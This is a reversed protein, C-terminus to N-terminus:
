LKVHQKETLQMMDFFGSKNSYLDSVDTNLCYGIFCSRRRRYWIKWCALVVNGCSTDHSSSNVGCWCSEAIWFAMRRTVRLRFVSYIQWFSAVDSAHTRLWEHTCNRRRCNIVNIPHGNAWDIWTYKNFIESNAMREDSIIDRFTCSTNTAGKLSEPTIRRRVRDM